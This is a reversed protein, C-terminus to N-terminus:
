ELRQQLRKLVTLVDMSASLILVLPDRRRRMRKPLTAITHQSPDLSAGFERWSLPTSVPAGPRPRVSFPAVITKGFGNQLYDLYVRGGRESLPRAVTAIDPNENAITRAFLETFARAEAHTLAGDLPFLIHLGDQGSTKLYHPAGVSRALRHVCHAVTCVQTFPAGKPDLDLIAWDPRDLSGLRASWVHLPICGSNIVYLLTPLDNCVFFDTDEIRESHVWSPTFPPANKQFFSKGHIGDPYRTLVVPRDRLYPSLYPWVSEYYNLLDGKTYGDEPWFIKDRNSIILDQKKEAPAPATIAAPRPSAQRLSDAELCTKDQRLRVFVPQRLLGKSTVEAFRVEAVLQPEVWVCARPKSRSPVTCPPTPRHLALLRQRLDDWTESDFGSGVNGAYTLGSENRWALMLAGLPEREAKGKTYGIIVLDASRAVKMKLWDTSRQGSQYTSAARKAVIGELGRERAEAFLAAGHEEMHDAYRVVGVRPLLTALLEKRRVLPLRRCDLGAVRLLDFCLYLVPVQRQARGIEGEDHLGLRRQLLEFSPKGNEDLAVVEGDLVFEQCPLRAVADAIEPFIPSAVRGSRHRLEVRGSDDRSALVRAGDYKLEFVWGPRSFAEPASSALMPKLDAIAARSGAARSGAARSGAAGMERARTALEADRTVGSALEDVRLGSLISAPYATVLDIGVAEKGKHLLLWSKGNEGKIRVLAWRGKLKHGYFVLDLKGANLDAKASSGDVTHFTGRDWLIMAGAGYNGAPIVGEFGSYDLPHDETQVALRKESPNLSPGRPVAWSCLVGNIELRLDWHMRRASHQQVVFVGSSPTEAQSASAEGFPEPTRLPDRKSRYTVLDRPKM